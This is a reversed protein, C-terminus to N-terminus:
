GNSLGWGGNQNTYYASAEGVESVVAKCNCGMICRISIISLVRSPALDSGKLNAEHKALAVSVSNSQMRLDSPDVNHFIPIAEQGKKEVCDM